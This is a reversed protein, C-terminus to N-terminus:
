WNSTVQPQYAQLKEEAGLIEEVIKQMELIAQLEEEPVKTARDFLEVLDAKKVSKQKM